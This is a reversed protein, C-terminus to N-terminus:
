AVSNSNTAFKKMNPVSYMDDVALTNVFLGLIESMVSSSMKWSMKQSLSSFIHYLHKRVSKVLTESGKTHQTDFLKELRPTKSM